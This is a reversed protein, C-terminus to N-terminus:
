IFFYTTYILKIGSHLKECCIACNQSERLNVPAISEKIQTPHIPSKLSDVPFNANSINSALSSPLSRSFVQKISLMTLLNDQKISLSRSLHEVHIIKNQLIAESCDTMKEQNNIRVANNSIPAPIQNLIHNSSTQNIINEIKSNM